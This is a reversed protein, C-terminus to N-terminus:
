EKALPTAAAPTAASSAHIKGSLQAPVKGTPDRELEDIGTFRTVEALDLKGGFPSGSREAQARKHAIIKREPSWDLAGIAWVYVLGVLLVLIFITIEIFGLWGNERVSVAWAYLFLAEVDFIVFFMAVLYFKASLRMRAGGVSVVGSEFPENKARGKNRGGLLQPVTLMFTCLFVVGIVFAALSWDHATMASM